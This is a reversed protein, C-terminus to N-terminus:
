SKQREEPHIRPVRVRVAKQWAEVEVVDLSGEFQSVLDATLGLGDAIYRGRLMETTLVQTSKDLILVSVREIGTIPDLESDVRLGLEIPPEGHHMSSQVANRVINTLIDDMAHRPILAWCPLDISDLWQLPAMELQALAPERLTRIYLSELYNADIRLTRLGDLIRMIGQYGVVNLAHNCRRLDRILKKRRRDGQVEGQVMLSISTKLNKFGVLLPGLVPDKHRLNLRVRHARGLVELEACYDKLRQAVGGTPHAGFLSRHLVQVKDGLVQEQELADVLGTLVMTNHKLVEHRIASLIRQVEPGTEPHRELLDRLGVGGLVKRRWIMFTSFMVLLLVLAFVLLNRLRAEASSLYDLAEEAYVSDPNEMLYGRLRAEAERLERIRFLDSFILGVGADRHELVLRALYFRAHTSGKAEAVLLKNRAEEPQGLGLNWIGVLELIEPQEENLKLSKALCELAEKSRGAAHLIRAELNLILTNSDHNELSRLQAMAADPKGRSLLVRAMNLKRVLASVEPGDSLAKSRDDEVQDPSGGLSRKLSEAQTKLEDEPNSELFYAVHQRAKNIEGLARYVRALRLHLRVWEPKLELARSLHIAGAAPRHVVGETLYLDALRLQNAASGPKIALARLYSLEAQSLSGEQRELDGQSMHARAFGPAKLLCETLAKRAGEFDKNRMMTRAQDELAIVEPSAEEDATSWGYREAERSVRMDWIRTSAKRKLEEDKQIARYWLLAKTKDGVSRYFEAMEFRIADTPEEVEVYGEYFRKAAEYKGRWRAIRAQNYIIRPVNGRLERATQLLRSAEKLKSNNADPHALLAGLNQYAVGREPDLAITERYHIEAREYVGLLEYCHALNNTVEPDSSDLEYAEQFAKLAGPIDKENFLKLGHRNRSRALKGFMNEVDEILKGKAGPSLAKDRIEDGTGDYAFSPQTLGLHLLSLVIFARCMM